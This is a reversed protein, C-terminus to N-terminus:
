TLDDPMWVTIERTMVEVARPTFFDAQGLGLRRVLLTETVAGIATGSADCVVVVSIQAARENVLRVNAM